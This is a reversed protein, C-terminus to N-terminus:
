FSTYSMAFKLSVTTYCNQTYSKYGIYSASSNLLIYCFYCNLPLKQSYSTYSSYCTCCAQKIQCLDFTFQFRRYSMYSTYSMKRIQKNLDHWMQEVGRNEWKEDGM